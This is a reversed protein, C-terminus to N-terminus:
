AADKVLKAEVRSGRDANYEDNRSLWAPRPDGGPDERAADGDAKAGAGDVVSRGPLRSRPSPERPEVVGPDIQQDSAAVHREGQDHHRPIPRNRDERDDPAPREERDDQLQKPHM